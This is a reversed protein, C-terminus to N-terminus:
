KRNGMRRSILYIVLSHVVVFALVGVGLVVVSEKWLPVDEVWFLTVISATVSIFFGIGRGLM